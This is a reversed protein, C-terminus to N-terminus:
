VNYRVQHSRQIKNQRNFRRNFRKGPLVKSNRHFREPTEYIAKLIEIDNASDSATKAYTTHRFYFLYLHRYIYIM